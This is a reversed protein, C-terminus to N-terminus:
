YRADRPKGGNPWDKDKAPFDPRPQHTFYEAVDLADQDSLAEGQGLRPNFGIGIPMNHKVFAAATYTRAMGAGIDFSQDGWLPPFVFAGSADQVGDGGAGHCEACQAAYVDKGHSSDAVLTGNFPGTGKGAVDAKPPLGASLWDFYALIATMEASDPALAKGNMSRVFCGNVREALSLPRGARPNAHPYNVAVGYFPSAFAVKGEGLHCSTCNMGNGVNDPLLRKTDSLLRMGRLIQAGAADPPIASDRPPAFPPVPTPSAKAQALAARIKGVQRPTVAAAGNGWATRIYSVVAALERDDLLAFAPMAFATSQAHTGPMRGGALVIRILSTADDTGVVSSGALAPFIRAIGAGDARHCTACFEGYTAAGSDPPDRVVAAPLPTARAAAKAEGAPLTKLFVAIATLDDDALYQTSNHVVEAMSAFAATSNSRGSKLFTVIDGDRWRGLGDDDQGRLSKAHWGDINAGALFVPGDGDGMAKEQFGLGRPTHCSGCHGLGEVLYAGRNWVADHGTSPQFPRSPLFAANWVALPWRFGLLRPIDSPRNPQAVATVGRQFYAYLAGVDGDTVKAYSPYPMAPYLHHGDKAVGGRLARAFDEVSYTGIGTQPDPTINTSYIRGIPTEMALGGAFDAGGPATHCAICDGARALLRGREVGDAAPGEEAQAAPAALALAAYLGLAVGHRHLKAMMRGGLSM